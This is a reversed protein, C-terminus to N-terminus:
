VGGELGRLRMLALLVPSSLLSLMSSTVPKQSGGAATSSCEKPVPEISKARGASGCCLLWWVLISVGVASGGAAVFAGRWSLGCSKAFILGYPALMNGVNCAMSLLGWYKARQSEPLKTVVVRAVFPWGFAQLVGQLGWLAAMSSFESCAGLAAVALGSLLLGLAHFESCPVYDSAISTFFKGFGYAASFVSNPVGLKEMPIDLELAITRMQLPFVGRMTNFYGYGIFLGILLRLVHDEGGDGGNSGVSM